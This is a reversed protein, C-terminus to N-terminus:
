LNRGPPISRRLRTLTVSFQYAEMGQPMQRGFQIAFFPKAAYVLSTPTASIDNLSRLLNAFLVKGTLANAEIM